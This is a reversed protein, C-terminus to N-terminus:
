ILAAKGWRRSDGYASLQGSQLKVANIGGFYLNKKQWKVLSTDPPLNSEEFILGPEIQFADEQFHLRPAEVADSLPLKERMMYRFFQALMYPIRGAGGTGASIILQQMPEDCIVPTMMSALRANPHWSHFGAPMLMSEGLMNNMLIQTDPVVFGCGEGNTMTIAISNGVLDTISLHSTNGRKNKTSYCNKAGSIADSYCKVFEHRDASFWHDNKILNQLIGGGLSPAPVTYFNFHNKSFKLPKRIVASYNEFDDMSLHGGKVECAKSINRAPEGKYFEDCGHRSLYDIFDGLQPLYMTEGSRLLSSDKGSFMARGAESSLLVGELLDFDLEQFEDVIAGNKSVEIAFAALEPLAIKCLTKHLLMIGAPMGPTAMAGLGVHFIESSDGFHVVHPYFHLQEVPKKHRPTQCFFDIVGTEGEMTRFVAFAGGGLSSMCTETLTSCLLAALAADFANGGNRLITVAADVTQQHGAAVAGFTNNVHM